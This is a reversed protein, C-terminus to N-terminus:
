PELSKYDDHKQYPREFDVTTRLKTDFNIM